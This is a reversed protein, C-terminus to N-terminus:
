IFVMLEYHIHLYKIQNVYFTNMYYNIKHM